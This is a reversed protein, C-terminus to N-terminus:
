EVKVKGGQLTIKTAKNSIEIKGAVMWAGQETRRYKVVYTGPKVRARVTPDPWDVTYEKRGILLQVWLKYESTATITLAVTAPAPKTPGSGPQQSDVPAVKSSEPKPATDTPSSTLEPPRELTEKKPPLPSAEPPAPEPPPELPLDSPIQAVSVDPGVAQDFGFWFAAFALVSVIGALPLLIVLGTRARRGHTAPPPKPPRPAPPMGPSIAESHSVVASRRVAPQPESAVPVCFEGAVVASRVSSTRDVDDPSAAGPPSLPVVMTATIPPQVDSPSVIRHTVSLLTAEAASKAPRGGDEHSSSGLELTRLRKVLEGLELSANRYGDWKFLYQLAARATPRRDPDHELLRSRLVALAHPVDVRQLAPTDGQAVKWLMRRYDVEERFPRGDILEHLVAGVAFLDLAPSCSDGTLQEPPMYQVKGRVTGTSAEASTSAIGFDAIKVEGAVSIIINQPSIDRHVIAFSGDDDQLDHAYALAQLVQGIIFAVLTHPLVEGALRRWLQDLSLGDVFEMVLYPRGDIEGADFVQVISAHSLKMSLRMERLFMRKYDARDEAHGAILKLAVTKRAGSGGVDAERVAKWVEAMGGEGLREVLVYPGFRRGTNPASSSM